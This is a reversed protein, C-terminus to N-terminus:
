RQLVLLEFSEEAYRGVATLWTQERLRRGVQEGRLPYNTPLLYHVSVLTGGEALCNRLQCLTSDFGAETLYYGVESLVVLDFVGAPWDNPISGELVIAGPFVRLRTRAREAVDPLMEMAVLEDCRKALRESLVGISCGPEFARTYRARPLSAITLEYKRQEYWSSEFDWPDPSDAYIEEFYSRNMTLESAM